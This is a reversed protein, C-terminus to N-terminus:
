PHIILQSFPTPSGPTMQCHCPLSADLTAAAADTHNPDLGLPFSGPTDVHARAISRRSVLHWFHFCLELCFLVVFLSSPSLPFDGIPANQLPQNHNKIGRNVAALNDTLFMIKSNMLKLSTDKLPLYFMLSVLAIFIFIFLCLALFVSM